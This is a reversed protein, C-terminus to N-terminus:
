GGSVVIDDFRLTQERDLVGGMGGWVPDIKVVEWYKGGSTTSLVVDDYTGVLSGDLWFRVHGDGRDGTNFRAYVEVKHWRGRILEGRSRNPRLNRNNFESSQIDVELILSGSKIGRALIFIPDAALGARPLFILKNVGSAHGNWNDSFKVWFAVHIEQWQRESVSIWTRNNPAHGGSLGRPFTIELASPATRGEEAAQSDNVIAMNEQDNPDGNIQWHEAVLRDFSNSSIVPFVPKTELSGANGAGSEQLGTTPSCAVLLSLLIANVTPRGFENRDEAVRGHQEGSLRARARARRDHWGSSFNLNRCYRFVPRLV